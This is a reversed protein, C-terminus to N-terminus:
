DFKMKSLKQEFAERNQEFMELAKINLLGRIFTILFSHMMRQRPVGEKLRAVLLHESIAVITEASLRCDVDDRLYGKEASARLWKEIMSEGTVGEMPRHNKMLEPYYKKLDSAMLHYKSSFYEHMRGLIITVELPSSTTSEVRCHAKQIIRDMQDLCARLLEEKNSFHEYLTRKSIGLEHAIDDMTIRKCGNKEFQRSATAIIKKKIDDM